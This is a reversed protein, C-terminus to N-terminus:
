CYYNLRYLIGEVANARKVRIEIQTVVSILLYFQRHLVNSLLQTAVNLLYLTKEVIEVIGHGLVLFTMVKSILYNNNRMM